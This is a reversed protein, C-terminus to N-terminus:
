RKFYFIAGILALTALVVYLIIKNRSADGGTQTNAVADKVTGSQAALAESLSQSSQASIGAVAASFTKALDAIPAVDNTVLTVSGKNGTITPATNVKSGELDLLTAGPQVVKNKNGRNQIAADGATQKSDSATSDSGGIGFFGSGM